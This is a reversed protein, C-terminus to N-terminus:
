CETDRLPPPLIIPASTKPLSGNGNLLLAPHFDPSARTTPRPAPGAAAPTSEWMLWRYCRFVVYFCYLNFLAALFYGIAMISVIAVVFDTSGKLATAPPGRRRTIQERVEDDDAMVALRFSLSTGAVLSYVCFVSLVLMTFTFLLQVVLHPILFHANRRHLGVCLLVISVLGLALAVTWSPWALGEPIRGDVWQMVGVTGQYLIYLLEFFIIGITLSRVHVCGCCSTFSPKREEDEPTPLSGMGVDSEISRTRQLIAKFVKDVLQHFMKKARSM